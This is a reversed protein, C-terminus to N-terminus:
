ILEYRLCRAPMLRSVIWAPYTAGLVGLTLSLGIAKACLMWSIGGTMWFGAGDMDLQLMGALLVWALAIGVVGAGACLVLSEALIMRVIRWRSWGIAMLVGIERTRETVAMLMTNMVVLCSALVGVISISWAAAHVVRIVGLKNAFVGSRIASLHPFQKAIAQIVPQEEARPALQLLALNVTNDQSLLLARADGSDMLMAGDMLRTGTAYIGTITFFQNSELMIKGGPYYKGAKAMIQGLMVEQRGPTLPRGEMMSFSDVLPLVSPVGIVMQNASWWAQIAGILMPTVQRVDPIDLFLDCDEMHIRSAFPSAASKSQVVLDVRQSCILTEVESQLNQSIAFLAVFLMVGAAMGSGTVLTRLRRRWLNRIALM